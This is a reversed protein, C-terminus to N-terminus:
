AAAELAPQPFQITFVAGGEPRNVASVSGGHAEAVRYVIALGLGTGASKTTFFPEFARQLTDASLGTGSDGVRVDIGQPGTSADVTISGGRPMAELANLILNLLARRLMHRDATIQQRAPVANRPEISQAAMQPALSVFIEDVLGRLLFAQLQPDRDSTFQLLDNVTADLATFGLEIKDLVALSEQDAAIRRRLLSLYLTVPVLNNRVEHAVHAAMRGLDALRDKRALERNKAELEDTLRHVEERLAQHTQELRLTAAHWAALVTEL